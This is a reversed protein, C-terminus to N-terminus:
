SPWIFHPHLDHKKGGKLTHNSGEEYIADNILLKCEVKDIKSRTEWVWTNSDTNKLPLGKEWSLKGGEGRIFLHNKFGVDCHVTISTTTSQKKPKATSKIAKKLTASGTTSKKPKTKKATARAPM